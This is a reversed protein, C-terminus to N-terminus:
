GRDTDGANEFPPRKDILSYTKAFFLKLFLVYCDVKMGELRGGTVFCM